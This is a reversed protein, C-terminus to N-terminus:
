RQAKRKKPEQSTLHWHGRRSRDNAINWAHSQSIGFRRGLSVSSEGGAHAARLEAVQEDTLKASRHQQGFRNDHHTHCYTCRPRYFTLDTTYLLGLPSVKENPDGGEYSWHAAREGCDICAHTSAKGRATSLRWHVTYYTAADGVGAYTPVRIQLDGNRRWREYHTNCWGRRTGHKDCDPVSCPQPVPSRLQIPVDPMPDGLRRWRLYHSNCWGRGQAPRACTDISCIQTSM